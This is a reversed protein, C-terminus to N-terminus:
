SWFLRPGLMRASRHKPGYRSPGSGQDRTRILCRGKTPKSTPASPERLPTSPRGRPTRNELAGGVCAPKIHCRPGSDLPYAKTRLARTSLLEIQGASRINSTPSMRRPTGLPGLKCASPPDHWSPGATGDFRLPRFKTKRQRSAFITPPGTLVEVGAQFADGHVQVRQGKVRFFHQGPELGPDPQFARCIIRRRDVPHHVQRRVVQRDRTGPDLPNRPAHPEPITTRARNAWGFPSTGPMRTSPWKSM